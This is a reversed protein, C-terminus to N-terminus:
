LNAVGKAGNKKPSMIESLYKSDMMEEVSSLLDGKFRYIGMYENKYPDGSVLTGNSRYRAVIVDDMEIIETAELKFEQITRGLSGLLGKTEDRSHAVPLGTSAPLFTLTFEETMIDDLQTYSRADMIRWLNLITNWHKSESSM